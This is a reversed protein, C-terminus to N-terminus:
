VARAQASPASVGLAENALAVVDGLTAIDAARAVDFEFDYREELTFVVESVQLSSLGIDAVRTSENLELGAPLKRRLERRALDAVEEVTVV